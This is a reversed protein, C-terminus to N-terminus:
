SREVVVNVFIANHTWALEIGWLYKSRKAVAARERHPVTGHLWRPWLLSQSLWLFSALNRPLQTHPRWSCLRPKKFGEEWDWQNELWSLPSMLTLGWPQLVWYTAWVVWEGPFIESGMYDGTKQTGEWTCLDLRIAKRGKRGLEM